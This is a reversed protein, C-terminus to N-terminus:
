SKNIREREGETEYIDPECVYTVRIKHDCQVLCRGIAIYHALELVDVVVLLAHLAPYISQFCDSLVKQVIKQSTFGVCDSQCQHTDFIHYVFADDHVPTSSPISRLM